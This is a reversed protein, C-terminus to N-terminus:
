NVLIFGAIIDGILKNGRNNLHVNSNADAFFYDRNLENLGACKYLDICPLYYLEAIDKKVKADTYPFLSESSGTGYWGIYPVCLYIRVGPYNNLVYEVASQWNGYRTNTDFTSGIPAIEGMADRTQPNNWDNIGGDFVVADVGTFDYAKIADCIQYSHWGATAVTTVTAGLLDRLSQQLGVCTKGSWESKVSSWYTVGDYAERSDGFCVIKKGDWRDKNLASGDYSYGKLM